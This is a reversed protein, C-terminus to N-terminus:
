LNNRTHKMKFSLSLGGKREERNKRAKRVAYRWQKAEREAYRKVVIFGVMKSTGM